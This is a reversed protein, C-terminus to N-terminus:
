VIRQNITAAPGDTGSYTSDGGSEVESQRLKMPLDYTSFHWLNAALGVDSQRNEGSRMATGCGSRDILVLGGCM